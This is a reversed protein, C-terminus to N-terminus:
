KKVLNARPSYESLRLGLVSLLKDVTVYNTLIEHSSIGERERSLAYDFAYFANQAQRQTAGNAGCVLFFEDRLSM